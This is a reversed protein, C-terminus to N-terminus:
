VKSQKQLFFFLNWFDPGRGLGIKFTVSKWQSMIWHLVDRSHKFQHRLMQAWRPAQLKRVKVWNSDIKSQNDNEALLTQNEGRYRSSSEQIQAIKTKSKKQRLWFSVNTRWKTYCRFQRRKRFKLAVFQLWAAYKYSRFMLLSHSGYVRSVECLKQSTCWDKNDLSPKSMWSGVSVQSQFFNQRECLKSYVKVRQMICKEVLSWLTQYFFDMEEHNSLGKMAGTGFLM